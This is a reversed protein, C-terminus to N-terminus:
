SSDPVSLYSLLSYQVSTATKVLFDPLQLSNVALGNNKVALM